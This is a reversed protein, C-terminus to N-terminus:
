NIDGERAAALPLLARVLWGSGGAGASCSGGIAQARDNMSSLGMGSGQGPRGASDISVEVQDQSAVVRVAVPSGPAHKTANTLAEQVIRYVTSGITAPLAGLGGEVALSIDAGGNRMEDVLRPLQDAGPVPPVIAEGSGSRLLGMTARVEDLSQRGLREAEALARAADAPDHVIALRASSVHLLSVTLSHAIVDHLERAIRNREETRSREALDAQAARLQSVLSLQHRVLGFGLITVSVGAAWPGWGPDRLAFLWQSGLILVSAAGYVLGFLIGGSTVCWAGLVCLAFWGVDRPDANGALVVGATALAALVPAFRSSALFLPVGALAAVLTGAVTDVPAAGLRSVLGVVLFVGLAGLGLRGFLPPLEVAEGPARLKALM